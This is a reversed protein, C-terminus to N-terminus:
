IVLFFFVHRTTMPLATKVLCFWRSVLQRAGFSKETGEVQHRRTGNITLRKNKKKRDRESERARETHTKHRCPFLDRTVPLSLRGSGQYNCEKDILIFPPSFMFFGRRKADVGRSRGRTREPRMSPNRSRRATFLFSFSGDAM